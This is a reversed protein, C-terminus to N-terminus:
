VWLPRDLRVSQGADWLGPGEAALGRGPEGGQHEPRPTHGTAPAGQLLGLDSPDLTLRPRKGPGRVAGQVLRGAQHPVETWLLGPPAPRTGRADGARLVARPLFPGPRQRGPSGPSTQPWPQQLGWVTGGRVGAERLPM